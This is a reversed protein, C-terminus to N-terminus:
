KCKCGMPLSVMSIRDISHKDVGYNEGDHYRINTQSLINENSVGHIMPFSAIQYESTYLEMNRKPINRNLKYYRPRSIINGINIAICSKQSISKYKLMRELCDKQTINIVHTLYENMENM